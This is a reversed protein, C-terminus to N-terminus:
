LPERVNVMQVDIAVVGAVDNGALEVSEREQRRRVQNLVTGYLRQQQGFSRPKPEHERDDYGIKSPIVLRRKGGARMGILGEELGPIMQDKGCTLRLPEDDEVTNMFVWGNKGVLRGFIHFTVRSDREVSLGGSGISIDAARLGSPYDTFTLRQPEAPAAAPFSIVAAAASVAVRRSCQPARLGLLLAPLSALMRKTRPSTSLPPTPTHWMSGGTPMGSSVTDVMSFVASKRTLFPSAKSVIIRVFCAPLGLNAKRKSM